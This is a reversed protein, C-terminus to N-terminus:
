EKPPMCHEAQGANCLRVKRRWEAMSKDYAAKERKIKAQRDRESQELAAIEADRKAVAAKYRDQRAQNMALIAESYLTVEANAACTEILGARTPRIKATGSYNALARDASAGCQGVREPLKSRYSFGEALLMKDMTSMGSNVNFANSRRQADCSPSTAIAGATRDQWNDALTFNAAKCEAATFPGSPPVFKPKPPPPAREPMARAQRQAPADSAPQPTAASQPPSVPREIPDPRSLAERCDQSDAISRYHAREVPDSIEAALEAAAECQFRASQAQAVTSPVLM